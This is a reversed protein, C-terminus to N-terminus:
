SESKNLHRGLDSFNSSTLGEVQNSPKLFSSFASGTIFNAKRKGIRLNAEDLSVLSPLSAFASKYSCIYLLRKQQM